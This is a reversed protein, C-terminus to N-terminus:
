RKKFANRTYEENLLLKLFVTDANVQVILDYQLDVPESRISFRHTFEHASSPWNAEQNGSELIMLLSYGNPKKNITVQVPKDFGALLNTAEGLRSKKFEAAGYENKLRILLSDANIEGNNQKDSTLNKEDGAESRTFYNLGSLVIVKQFADIFENIFQSSLYLVFVVILGIAVPRTNKLKELIVDFTTSKSKVM